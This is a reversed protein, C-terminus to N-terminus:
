VGEKGKTDPRDPLQELYARADFLAEGRTAGRYERWNEPFDISALRIVWFPNPKGLRYFEFMPMSHGKKHMLADFSMPEVEDAKDVKTTHRSITTDILGAVFQHTMTRSPNKMLEGSAERLEEV